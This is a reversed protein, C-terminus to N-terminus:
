LSGSPPIASVETSIADDSWTRHGTKSEEDREATLTSIVEWRVPIGMGSNIEQPIHSVTTLSKVSDSVYHM